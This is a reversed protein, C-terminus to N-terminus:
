GACLLFETFYCLNGISGIPMYFSVTEEGSLSYKKILEDGGSVYVSGSMADVGMAMDSFSEINDLNFTINLFATTVNYHV